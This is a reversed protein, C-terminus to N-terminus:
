MGARGASRTQGASELAVSAAAKQHALGLENQLREQIAQLRLREKRRQSAGFPASLAGKCGSRLAAITSVTDVPSSGSSTM